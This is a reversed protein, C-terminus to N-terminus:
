LDEEKIFQGNITKGKRDKIKEYAMALCNQPSINLQECLIILTVFIDGMELMLNRNLVISSKRNRWRKFDFVTKFEFIEEIVKMFQKEANEECLLHHTDAWDIISAQLEEFNKM